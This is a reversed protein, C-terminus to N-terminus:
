FDLGIRAVAGITTGGVELSGPAVDTVGRVTVPVDRAAVVGARVPVADGGPAGTPASGSCAALATLLLAAAAPPASRTM